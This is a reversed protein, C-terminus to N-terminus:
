ESDFIFKTSKTEKRWPFRKTDKNVLKIATLLPNPLGFLSVVAGMEFQLLWALSGPVCIFTFLLRTAPVM